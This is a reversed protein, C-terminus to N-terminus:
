NQRGIKRPIWLFGFCFSNKLEQSPNKITVSVPCPWRPGNLFIALIASKLGQMFPEIQYFLLTFHSKQAHGEHTLGDLVNTSTINPLKPSFPTKTKNIQLRVLNNFAQNYIFVHKSRISIDYCFSKTLKYYMIIVSWWPLLMEPHYQYKTVTIIWKWLLLKKYHNETKLANTM